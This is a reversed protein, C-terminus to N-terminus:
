ADVLRRALAAPEIGEAPAIRLWEPGLQHRFWTSQRKAYQRTAAKAREAAQELTSANAIVSQLQRVGIAKMAPLKPDLGLAALAAVEDRAGGAIMADFRSDIRAALLARDPELVLRMASDAEVLPTGKRAQWDLISRGSADLVELARM